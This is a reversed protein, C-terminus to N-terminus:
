KKFPTSLKLCEKRGFFEPRAGLLATEGATTVRNKMTQIDDSWQTALKFALNGNSM